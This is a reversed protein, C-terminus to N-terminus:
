KRDGVKGQLVANGSDDLIELYAVKSMTAPKRSIADVLYVKFWSIEGSLYQTKDLHVFLREKIIASTDYLHDAQLAPDVAQAFAPVAAQLMAVLLIHLKMKLDM